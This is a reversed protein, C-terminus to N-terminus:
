QENKLETKLSTKLIPYYQKWATEEFFVIDLMSAVHNEKVIDQPEPFLKSM